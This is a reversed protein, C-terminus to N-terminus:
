SLFEKNLPFIRFGFTDFVTLSAQNSGCHPREGLHQWTAGEFCLKFVTATAHALGQTFGEPDPADTSVSTEEM